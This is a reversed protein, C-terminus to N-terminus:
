TKQVITNYEQPSVDTIEKFSILFASYSPFGTKESLSEITNLNLYGSEILSITDYVRVTKKFEIFNISCHYKFLYILHSKPIELRIAFDRMSVCPNRFCFHELAMIEVKRIYAPLNNEVREKLQWDENNIMAGEHSIIWFDDFVLEFNDKTKEKDLHKYTIFLVEDTLLIKFFLVCSIVASIWLYSTGHSFGSVFVDILLSVELRLIFLFSVTFFFFTWNRILIKQRDVILVKAKRFWVKNKLEIYSLLLYYFPILLFLLYFYFKLYPAYLHILINSFGFLVPIIFYRLDEVSFNKKNVVLNKFYLYICPFVICGFSRVACAIRDDFSFPM